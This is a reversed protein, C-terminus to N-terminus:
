SPRSESFGMIVLQVFKYVGGIVDDKNDDDEDIYKQSVAHSFSTEKLQVQLYEKDELRREPGTVTLNASYQSKEDGAVFSPRSESQVNYNMMNYKIHM